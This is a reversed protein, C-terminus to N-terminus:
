NNEYSTLRKKKSDNSAVLLNSNLTKIKIHDNPIMIRIKINKFDLNYLDEYMNEVWIKLVSDQIEYKINEYLDNDLTRFAIQFSDGKVVDITSPMGVKILNIPTPTTYNNNVYELKTKDDTNDVSNYTSAVTYTISAFMVLMMILFKKMNM